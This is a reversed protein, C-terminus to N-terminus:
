AIEVWVPFHDSLHSKGPLNTRMAGEAVVGYGALRSQMANAVWAQDLRSGGGTTLAATEGAIEAADAYGRDRLVESVGGGPNENFDGLVVHPEGCDLVGAMEECRRRAAAEAGLYRGSPLHVNAVRLTGRDALPAGAIQWAREVPQAAARSDLALRGGKWLVAGGYQPLGHGRRYAGSMGLAGAVQEFAEESQIEQLCLLDPAMERYMTLLASLIAAEPPGPQPPRFPAGQFWFVNHSVIKM